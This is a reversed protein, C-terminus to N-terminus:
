VNIKHDKNIRKDAMYLIRDSDDFPINLNECVARLDELYKIYLNVQHEINKENQYTPINLTEGKYIIRYVRQDIIQYINKNKFRLISSAMPLQIGSTNLLAKLIVKTKDINIQSVGPNISNILDMTAPQLLSYRNVKWLVIENITNQDFNGNLKDLKKTLELQYNYEKDEESLQFNQDHITTHTSM